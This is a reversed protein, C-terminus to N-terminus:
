GGSQIMIPIVREIYMTPKSSSMAASTASGNIQGGTFGYQPLQFYLRMKVSTISQWQASTNSTFDSAPIYTVVNNDAGGSQALGYQVQMDYLGPVLNYSKYFTGDQYLLCQLYSTGNVTAIQFVNTYVHSASTDKISTGACSSISSTLYNNTDASYAIPSAFRVAISDGPAGGGSAGSIAQGSVFDVSGATTTIAAAPASFISTTNQTPDPFYGAQQIVDTLITMAMRENDQLQAMQSQTASSQRTHMVLTTLGALLFLAITISVMLEVMTYGYERRESFQRKMDM